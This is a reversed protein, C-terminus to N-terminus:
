RPHPIDPAVGAAVGTRQYRGAIGRVLGRVELSMLVSLATSIPLAARSAVAEATVPEGVVGDLVRREEASLGDPAALRDSGDPLRGIRLDDLVDEASRILTAGDRLLEHPVASLPSTVPGPVAFVERNLDVAFEATILSGSGAGGEVVVVARSLAAILRNRAPFRRPRAPVGPPYESVVTGVQVIDTLLGRNASPYAVDIGSGLVAITSGQVSLAGRHAAADVGLAAGSVVSVGHSALGRGITEAVERGYASCSRAGVVAVAADVEELSRGRAFLLAPPDALDLVCAPYEKNGPGLPRAGCASLADRVAAVEVSEALRGDREGSAGRRIAQLCARASGESWALDRFRRPTLTELHALILLAELEPEERGFRPPWGPPDPRV